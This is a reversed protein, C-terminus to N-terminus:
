SPIFPPGFQMFVCSIFALVRAQLEGAVPEMSSSGHSLLEGCQVYLDEHKYCERISSECVAGNESIPPEIM